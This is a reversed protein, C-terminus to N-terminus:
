KGGKVYGSFPYWLVLKPPCCGCGCTCDPEPPTIVCGCEDVVEPTVDVLGKEEGFYGTAVLIKKSM